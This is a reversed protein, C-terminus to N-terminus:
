SILRRFKETISNSTKNGDKDISGVGGGGEDDCDSFDSNNNSKKKVNTKRPSVRPSVSTSSNNNKSKNNNNNNNNNNNSNTVDNDNNGIKRADSNHNIKTNQGINLKQSKGTLEPSISNVAKDKEVKELKKKEGSSSTANSKNSDFKSKREREVQVNDNSGPPGAGTGTGGRPASSLGKSRMERVELFNNKGEIKSKAITEERFTIEEVDDDKKLSIKQKLKGPYGLKPPL